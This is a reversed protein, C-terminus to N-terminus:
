ILGKNIENYRVEGNVRVKRINDIVSVDQFSTKINLDKLKNEISDSANDIIQLTNEETNNKRKLYGNLTIRYTFNKNLDSNMYTKNLTYSFYTKNDVIIDDPVEASVEIDQIEELKTQILSRLEDM